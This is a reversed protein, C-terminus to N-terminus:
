TSKLPTKFYYNLIKHSKRGWGRLHTLEHIKAATTKVSFKVTIRIPPREHYMVKRQWTESVAKEHDTVSHPDRETHRAQSNTPNYKRYKHLYRLGHTNTRVEQRAPTRDSNRSVRSNQWEMTLWWLAKEYSQVGSLQINAQTWERNGLAPSVPCPRGWQNWWALFATVRVPLRIASGRPLPPKTSRKSMAGCILYGVFGPVRAPKTPKREPKCNVRLISLTMDAHLGPYICGCVCLFVHLLLCVGGVTTM